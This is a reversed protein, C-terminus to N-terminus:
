KTPAEKPTYTLVMLLFDAVDESSKTDAYFNAYDNPFTAYIKGERTLGVVVENGNNNQKKYWLCATAEACVRPAYAGAMRGIDYRITLGSPASIEGVRSDIGKKRIHRYGDLLRIDGPPPGSVPVTPKSPAAVGNTQAASSLTLASLLALAYIIKKTM